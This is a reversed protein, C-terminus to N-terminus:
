FVVNPRQFLTSLTAGPIRRVKSSNRQVVFSGIEGMGLTRPLERVFQVLHFDLTMKVWNGAWRFGIRFTCFRVFNVIDVEGRGGVWELVM